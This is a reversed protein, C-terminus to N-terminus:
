KPEEHQEGAKKEDAEHETGEMKEHAEYCAHSLGSKKGMKERKEICDFIAKTETADKCYKKIEKACPKWDDPIDARVPAAFFFLGLALAPIVFRMWQM